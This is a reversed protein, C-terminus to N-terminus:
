LIFDFSFIRMSNQFISKFRSRSILRQMSSLQKPPRFMQRSLASLLLTWLPHDCTWATFPLMSQVWLRGCGTLNQQCGNTSNRCIRFFFIYIKANFKNLFTHPRKQVQKLTWILISVFDCWKKWRFSRSQQKQPTEQPSLPPQTTSPERTRKRNGDGNRGTPSQSRSRTGRCFFVPSETRSSPVSAGLLIVNFNWQMEFHM